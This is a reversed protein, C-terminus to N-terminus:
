PIEFSSLWSWSQLKSLFSCIKEIVVHKICHNRRCQIFFSRSLCTCKRFFLLRRLAADEFVRGIRVLSVFQRFSRRANELLRLKHLLVHITLDIWCVSTSRRHGHNRREIPGHVTILLHFELPFPGPLITCTLIAPNQGAESQTTRTRGLFKEFCFAVSSNWISFLQFAENHDLSSFKFSWLGSRFQPSLLLKWSDILFSLRRQSSLLLISETSPLHVIHRLLSMYNWGHNPTQFCIRSDSPSSGLTNEQVRYLPLSQRAFVRWCILCCLDTGKSLFACIRTGFYFITLVQWTIVPM